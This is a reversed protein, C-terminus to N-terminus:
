DQYRGPQLEFRSGILALFCNLFSYSDPFFTSIIVNIIISTNKFNLVLGIATIGIIIFISILQPSTFTTSASSKPDRRLLEYVASKVYKEGLLKHSLWIIDLDSAVIIEPEMDYKFKIFEIFLQNSPDSMLTVVKNNHIRLPLAIHDNAFKLEIKKLVETDFTRRRIPAFTLGANSLSREYNKRSIYGFNLAIKVYSM